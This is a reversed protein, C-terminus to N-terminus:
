TSEHDLAEGVLASRGDKCAMINAAQGHPDLLPRLRFEQYKLGCAPKVIQPRRGAVPELRQPAIASSLVTNADVFLPTDAESPAIALRPLDLDDVVM